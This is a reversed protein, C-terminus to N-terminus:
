ENKDWNEEKGWNIEKESLPKKCKDCEYITIHLTVSGYDPVGLVNVRSNCCKSIM